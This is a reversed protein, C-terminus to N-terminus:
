FIDSFFEKIKSIIINLINKGYIKAKIKANDTIEDKHKSLRIEQAIGVVATFEPKPAGSNQPIGLHVIRDFIERAVTVLGPYYTIGGGTIVINEVDDWLGSNIFKSKAIFLLEELRAEIIDRLQNYAVEDIDALRNKDNQLLESTKYNFFEIKIQEAEDIQKHMCLAIDKTINNGGLELLENYSLINNKFISLEMSSAGIDIIAAGQILETESFVVKSEAISQIYIGDLKLGARTVCKYLDSIYSQKATVIQFNGSLKSARQGLPDSVIKSEDITYAIPIVKVIIHDPNIQILKASEELREIDDKKIQSKGPRITVKSSNEIFTCFGARISLNVNNIEDEIKEELKEICYSISNAVDDIDITLTNKVGSCAENALALIQLNGQANIIGVSGCVSSSGIDIGVIYESVAKEGGKALDKIINNWLFLFKGEIKM